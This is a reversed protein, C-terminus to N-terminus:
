AERRVWAEEPMLAKHEAPQIKRYVQAPPRASGDVTLLRSLPIGFISENEALYPQILAWDQVTLSAFVGGNLQDSTVKQWPDRIYIAGGSALSFLNGGPYPTELERIMGNEDFRIGNVIVFGGGNLPDGAMFSEALYDLCTGNIVVHPRGVANILPRGAANGMIFAEGGKAAYMFTQGVDGYVVLRGGKMIQALQDQASSHVIVEAGDIGSALYDGPSGYIDIRLGDSASGLGCGIFRQGRTNAVIIRRFGRRSLTVIAQALSENGEPPYGRADIVLTVDADGPEPLPSGFGVWAYRQSPAERITDVLHAFSQDLLALLCSRKMRGMPYRHDMLLTLVTIARDRDDDNSTMRELSEMLARVEDYDWTPLEQRVQDFLDAPSLDRRILMQSSVANQVFFNDAYSRNKHDGPLGNLPRKAQDPEIARGFKDMCQLTAKGTENAQVDFIFAGGDTHSGGRANWYLDARSWFRADERALSALAADIAQKESAAFGITAAGQQLAFIQPRLMSTDTIGILRYAHKRVDSQAILFFWPGDPSSHMHVAQVLRYLRQKEPPLLTFDRETTPALAEIVYELPYGYIRHLLDFVLVAVETDTLFLPYMNRQALYTCISVYNAFDGNHVLAEHMGIFPHAGGPHWVKGKTPYRHHGIWVHAHLNELQYYRFVDDGYGVMKLVLLNKGHSLVFAGKDGTAAYFTRNLRYSNQYVIEDEIATNNEDSIEHHQRFHALVDPRVRVFYCWVEPPRIELGPILRFESLAPIQFTGDVIFTPEVFNSEVQPRVSSDLYAIALLYDNTLVAPQVGFFDPDLGVAAAGGGKGNGRNRMQQLAQLLHRGAVPISAAMGIVGCGGEAEAQGSPMAACEGLSRRSTILAEILQEQHM